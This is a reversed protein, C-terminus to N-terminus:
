DCGPEKIPLAIEEFYYTAPIRENNGCYKMNYKSGVRRLLQEFLDNSDLQIGSADAFYGDSTIIDCVSFRTKGTKFAADLLEICATVSEPITESLVAMTTTEYKTIFQM